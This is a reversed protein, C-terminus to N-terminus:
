DEKLTVKIEKIELSKDPKIRISNYNEEVKSSIDYSYSDAETKLITKQGNISLEFKKEKKNNLFKFDLMIEYDKKLKSTTIEEADCDDPHDGHDDEYDSPCDNCEGSTVSSECVSNIGSVPVEDCWYNDSDDAYCCDKDYNNSCGALCSDDTDDGCREECEEPPDGDEDEYGTFCRSCKSESISSTCRDDLDDPELDCWFNNESDEFCCDVDEDEDCGSPCEGDVDGCREEEVDIFYDKDLDFYYVYDDEEEVNAKMDIRNIEYEGKTTSFEIDNDGLHILEPGFEIHNEINCLPTGSYVENNNVEIILPGIKKSDCNPYYKMEMKNASELEDKAIYFKNKTSLHSADELTGIVQINELYYENTKWFKLGPSSVSFEVINNKQLMDDKIKIPQVNGTSLYGEYIEEDNFRIILDGVAKKVVFNILLNRTNDVNDLSLSLVKPQKEYLSRKAAIASYDELVVGSSQEFLRVRPIFHHIRDDGQISLLGPNELLLVTEDEVVDSESGSSDGPVIIGSSGSSSGGEDLIDQREEPPLFLIYLIVMLAIITVLVAASGGGSEQSKKNKRFM